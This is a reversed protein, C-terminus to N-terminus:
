LVCTCYLFKSSIIGIYSLQDLSTNLIIFDNKNKTNVNITKLYNNINMQRWSVILEMNNYVYTGVNM